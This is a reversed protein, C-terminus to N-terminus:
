QARRLQRAVDAVGGDKNVEKGSVEKSQVETKKRKSEKSSQVIEELSSGERKKKSPGISKNNELGPNARARRKWHRSTLGLKDAVWGVEEEYTMAVPGDEISDLELGTPGDCPPCQRASKFDVPPIECQRTETVKHMDEGQENLVIEEEWKEKGLKALTEKTSEGLKSVKGNEHFKEITMEGGVTKEVQQGMAGEELFSADSAQKKRAVVERQKELKNREEELHIRVGNISREGEMNKSFGSEVGLRKVPDGRMWAGYQLEDKEDGKGFGMSESCERQDHELLGCRYCFNPLNEYKFQVWKAEEKEINIKRYTEKHCRNRGSSSPMKGM